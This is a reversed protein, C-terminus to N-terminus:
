NIVGGNGNPPSYIPTYITFFGESLVKNSHNTFDQIMIRYMNGDPITNPLNITFSEATAPTMESICYWWGTQANWLWIEIHGQFRTSDWKATFTRACNEGGYPQVETTSAKSMTFSSGIISFILLVRKIIHKM